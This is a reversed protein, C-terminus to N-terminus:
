FSHDPILGLGLRPCAQPITRGTTQIMRSVQVCIILECRVAFMIYQIDM